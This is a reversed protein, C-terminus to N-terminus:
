FNFNVFLLGYINTPKFQQQYYCVSSTEVDQWWIALGKTPPEHKKDVSPKKNFTVIM